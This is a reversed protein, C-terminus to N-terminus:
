DILLKLRHGAPNGLETASLTGDNDTDAQKFLRKVLALYEPKSLTGDHDTDAGKFTAAAIVGKVEARDLTGDANKDLKDFHAGAATEVETWDLTKDNDKDYRAVVAPSSETALAYPAALAMGFLVTFTVGFGSKARYSM